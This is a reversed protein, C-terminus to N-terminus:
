STTGGPQRRRRERREIYARLEEMFEAKLPELAQLAQTMYATNARAVDPDALMDMSRQMFATGAPTAVFARIQVLEAYSFSRAYARAMAIFIAPAGDAIQRNTIERIREMFHDLLQRAEADMNGGLAQESAIRAQAMMTDSSRALMAHRMDPPYAIDIIETALTLSRPDLAGVPVPPTEQAPLAPGAGGLALMAAVGLIRLASM